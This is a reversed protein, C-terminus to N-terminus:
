NLINIYKFVSLKIYIILLHYKRWDPKDIFLKNVRVEIITIIKKNVFLNYEQFDAFSHKLLFMGFTDTNVYGVLRM